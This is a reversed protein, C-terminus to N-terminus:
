AELGHMTGKGIGQVCRIKWGFSPSQAEIRSNNETDLRPSPARFRLSKESTKLARHEVKRMEFLQPSHPRQAMLLTASDFAYEGRFLAHEIEQRRNHNCISCKRFM